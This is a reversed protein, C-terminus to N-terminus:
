ILRIKGTLLAQMMGQKQLKLKNLKFDYSAIEIEMDNLVQGIKVQIEINPLDIEVMCVHSPGFNLQASGTAKGSIQEKFRKSKLFQIFYGEDLYEKKVKFRMTSTNMCLPLHFVKAVTVKEHFKDISVGSCAILIDNEDVLFHSYWGFAEDESIFKDTNELDLKGEQINTGNLLKVGSHTFQHKRVGPGEQFWCVESIRKKVWGNKPKLLEQMLGQKIANKKEILKETQSILEDINSLATAIYTQEIKTAPLQIRCKEIHHNLIHTQSVGDNLSLFYRNRNLVYFLYKSEINSKPRWICVRQNVAFTNNKNVVFCKALAKGNPLDSLVTLVDGTIATCFSINSFKKVNGDTSIFKSNVVIYKGYEEIYQEHAKGHIYYVCDILPLCDWDVPIIGVDTQKYGNTIGM